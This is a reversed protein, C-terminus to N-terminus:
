RLLGFYIVAPLMPVIAYGSLIAMSFFFSDYRSPKDANNDAQNIQREVYNEKKLLPIIILRSVLINAIFLAAIIKLRTAVDFPIFDSLMLVLITELWVPSVANFFSIMNYEDPIDHMRANNRNTRRFLAYRALIYPRYLQRLIEM